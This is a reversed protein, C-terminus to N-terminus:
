GKKMVLIREKGGDNMRIFLSDAKLKTIEVVKENAKDNLTDVTFLLNDKLLYTGSEKYNLTSTFDYKKDSFALTIEELNVKLSDGEETLHIASWHGKLHEKNLKECSFFLTLILLLFLNRM